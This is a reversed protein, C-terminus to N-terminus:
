GVCGLMLGGALSTGLYTGPAMKEGLPHTLPSSAHQAHAALVGCCGFDAPNPLPCELLTHPPHEPHTISGGEWWHSVRSHGSCLSMGARLLCPRVAGLCGESVAAQPEWDQVPLLPAGREDFTRPTMILLTQAFNLSIDSRM